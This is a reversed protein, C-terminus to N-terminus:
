SFILSKFVIFIREFYSVSQIEVETTNGSKGDVKKANNKHNFSVFRATVGEPFVTRNQVEEMPTDDMAANEYSRYQYSPRRHLRNKNSPVDNEDAEYGVVPLLCPISHSTASKSIFQLYEMADENSQVNNRSFMIVICINGNSDVAVPMGVATQLCMDSRGLLGESRQCNAWVVKMSSSVADVLRPSLVHKEISTADDFESQLIPSSKTESPPSLLNCRQDNYSKSTYLQVFRHMKKGITSGKVNGDQFDLNQNSNEEVHLFQYRLM